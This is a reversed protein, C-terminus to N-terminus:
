CWDKWFKHFTFTATQVESPFMSLVKPALEDIRKSIFLKPRHTADYATLESLTRGEEFIGAM